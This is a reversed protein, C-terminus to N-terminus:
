DPEERSRQEWDAMQEVLPLFALPARPVQFMTEALNGLDSQATHVRELESQLRLLWAPVDLGVGSPMQAFPQLETELPSVADRGAPPQPM